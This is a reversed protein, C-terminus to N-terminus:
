KLPTPSRLYALSAPPHHEPPRVLDFRIAKQPCGVVCVGCGYCDEATIQAKMKKSGPVKVMEISEVFCRGVCEQCGNCKDQEVTALFRSPAYLAHMDEGSNRSSIIIGCCDNACSCIVGPMVAANFPGEHILGAREAEDSKALAEEVTYVKMNGHGGDRRAFNLVEKSFQFCNWMPHDCRTGRNDELKITSRGGMSGGSRCGCPGSIIIEARRFIQEIDEHWLLDEKKIDPNSLIALRAPWVRHVPFKTKNYYDKWLKVERLPNEDSWQKRWKAYEPKPAYEPSVPAGGFSFHVGRRFHYENKGRYILGRKAFNDLKEAIKNEDANLKKALAAVTIPNTCQLLFEAEELTMMTELMKRFSESEPFTWMEAVKKYADNPLAMEM